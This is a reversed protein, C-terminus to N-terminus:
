LSVWKCRRGDEPSSASGTTLVFDFGTGGGFDMLKVDLDVLPPLVLAYPLGGGERSGGEEAVLGVVVDVIVIGVVEVVVDKDGVGGGAAGMGVGAIGIGVDVLRDCSMGPVIPPIVMPMVLRPGFFLVVVLALGLFFFSMPAESSSKNAEMPKPPGGGLGFGFGAGLGFAVRGFFNEATEVVGANAELGAAGLGL